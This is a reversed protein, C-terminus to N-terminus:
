KRMNKLYMEFTSADVLDIIQALAWSEPKEADYLTQLLWTANYEIIVREPQHERNMRMLRKGAIQRPDDLNM